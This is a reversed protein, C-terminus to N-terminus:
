KQEHLKGGEFEDRLGVMNKLKAIARSQPLYELGCSPNLYCEMGETANLILELIPFIDAATEMKTNRGDIIGLGLTKDTGYIAIKEPLDPSYTFDLGLIDVPM